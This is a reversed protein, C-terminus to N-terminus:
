FIGDMISDMYKAIGETYDFNIYNSPFLSYTSDFEPVDLHAGNRYIYDFEYALEPIYIQEYLCSISGCWLQKLLQLNNYVELVKMDSPNVIHQEMMERVEELTETYHEFLIKQYIICSLKSIGNKGKYVLRSLYYLRLCVSYLRLYDEQTRLGFMLLYVSTKAVTVDIDNAFSVITKRSTVIQGCHPLKNKSINDMYVGYLKSVGFLLM